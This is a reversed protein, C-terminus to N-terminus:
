NKLPVQAIHMSPHNVCYDAWVNEKFNRVKTKVIWRWNTYTLFTSDYFWSVFFNCLGYKNLAETISPLVGMSTVSADFYNEARSMFLSRVSQAFSYISFFIFFQNIAVETM